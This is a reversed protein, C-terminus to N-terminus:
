RGTAHKLNSLHRHWLVLGCRYLDTVSLRCEASIPVGDPAAPGTGGGGGGGGDDCGDDESCVVGSVDGGTCTSVAAVSLVVVGDGDHGRGNRTWCGAAAGAL